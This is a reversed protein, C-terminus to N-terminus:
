SLKSKKHNASNKIIGCLELYVSEPYWHEFAIEGSDYIIFNDVRDQSFEPDGNPFELEIYGSKNSPKFELSVINYDKYTQEIESDSLYM